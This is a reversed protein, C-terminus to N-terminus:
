GEFGDGFLGDSVPGGLLQHTRSNFSAGRDPAATEAIVHVRMNTLAATRLAGGSTAYSSPSLALGKFTSAKADLVISAHSGDFSLADPNAATRSLSGGNVVLLGVFHPLDYLAHFVTEQKLGRTSSSGALTFGVTNKIYPSATGATLGYDSPAYSAKRDFRNLDSEVAGSLSLAGSNTEGDGPYSLAVVGVPLSTTIPVRRLLDFRWGATLRDLVLHTYFLPRGADRRLVSASSSRIFAAEGQGIIEAVGARILLGTKQDLGIALLQRNNSEDTARALIGILRGMRGRQAYHTDITVGSIFGLFDDHIGSTGPVSVDDLYPTKADGLVDASIMDAGGCFCYQAQSMAGASTGGIAGSRGIIATRIHMELRTANWKDYYEGQDGGKIFVADAAAVPDVVAPTNAAALSDVEVNFAQTPVGLTSGIWVFYDPLWADNLLAQARAQPETLGLGPPNANIPATAYAYWAPDNVQLLTTLVAVSVVGDGTRDGNLILERYLSYSWSGTDGQDGERGGGAVVVVGQASAWQALLMIILCFGIRQM